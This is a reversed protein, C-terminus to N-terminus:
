AAGEVRCYKLGMAIETGLKFYKFGEFAFDAWRSQGDEHVRCIMRPAFRLRATQDQNITFSRIRAM